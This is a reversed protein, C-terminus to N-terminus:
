KAQSRESLVPQSQYLASWATSMVGTLFWSLYSIYLYSEVAATLAPILLGARILFVMLGLQRARGTSSKYLRVSLIISVIIIALYLLLAVWGCQVGVIIFQNEGGVNLGLAGAVRGSEGLGMGLPHVAMAEIGSIWELLHALSSSDSLQITAIIFDAITNNFSLFLVSICFLLAAAHFVRVVKTRGSLLFFLYGVLIFALMSARSLAFVISLLVAFLTLLFFGSEKKYDGSSYVAALVPATILTSAALELPNAFFSAFRKIGGEIEFTWSLGYNGAPDFLFYKEYFSAFGTLQQLHANFFLEGLLVMAAALSLLMILKQLKSIWIEDITLLRGIFYLAPFFCINKFAVVKEFLGFSGLPLFIYAMVYLFFLLMLKDLWNAVPPAPLKYICFALTAIVLGEKAYQLLPVLFDMGYLHSVSLATIYIPLGVVIFFLIGAPRSKYLERCAQLLGLLYVLPFFFM